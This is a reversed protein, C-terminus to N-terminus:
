DHPELVAKIVKEEDYDPAFKAAKDCIEKVKKEDEELEEAIQHISKLKRLKQCIKKIISKKEGIEVGREEGIVVGRDFIVQSMGPMKSVEKVIKPNSSVPTYKDIREIDAANVASLYDLIPETFEGDEGRRVVIVELLDYLSNRIEAKGIIDEKGIYYRVCTNQFREPTKDDTVIWLSVVKELDNYNTQETIRGLQSSLERAAYYIGRSEIEYSKGDKLTPKNKGQFEIILHLRVLFNESSLVPNKVVFHYDFTVPKDITSNMETSYEVVRAPLDSVPTDESISDADILKMIIEVPQDKMEKLCYKLIPALIERNRWIMKAAQDYKAGIDDASILDQKTEERM